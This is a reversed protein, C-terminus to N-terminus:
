VTELPNWEHSREEDGLLYDITARAEVNDALFVNGLISEPHRTHCSSKLIRTYGSKGVGNLGFVINLGKSSLTLDTNTRM